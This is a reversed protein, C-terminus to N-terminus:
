RDHMTPLVILLVNVYAFKIFPSRSDAPVQLATSIQWRVILIRFKLVISTKGWIAVLTFM